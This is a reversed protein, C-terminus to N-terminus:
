VQTLTLKRSSTILSSDTQEAPSDLAIKMLNSLSRDNLIKESSFKGLPWV